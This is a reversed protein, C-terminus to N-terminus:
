AGLPGLQRATGTSDPSSGSQALVQTHMCPQRLFALSAVSCFGELLLQLLSSRHVCWSGDFLLEPNDAYSKSAEKAALIGPISMRLHPSAGPAWCRSKPAFPPLFFFSPQAESAAATDTSSIAPQDLSPTSDQQQQQQPQAAAHTMMRAALCLLL